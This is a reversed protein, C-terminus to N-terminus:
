SSAPTPRLFAALTLALMGPRPLVPALAEPQTVAGTRPRLVMRGSEPRYQVDVLELGSALAVPEALEWVRQAVASRDM